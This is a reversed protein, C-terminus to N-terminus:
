RIPVPLSGVGRFPLIPSNTLDVGIRRAVTVPLIVDDCGSDVLVPAAGVGKPGFAYLSIVPKHRLTAGGLSPIPRGTNYVRFPFIVRGGKRERSDRRGNRQTESHTRCSRRAAGYHSSRHLGM